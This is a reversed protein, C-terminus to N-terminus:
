KVEESGSSYLLGSMHGQKLIKELKFRYSTIFNRLSVKEKERVNPIFELWKLSDQIRQRTYLTKSYSKPAANLILAFEEFTFEYLDNLDILLFLEESLFGYKNMLISFRNPLVPPVPSPETIIVYAKVKFYAM